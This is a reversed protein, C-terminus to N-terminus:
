KTAPHSKGRLYVLVFAAAYLAGVLPLLMRYGTALSVYEAIGGFVSGVLNSALSRPAEKTDGLLKAFIVNAIMVPSLATVVGLVYRLTPSAVVLREPPIVYVVALTAALAVGWPWVRKVAFRTNVVIAILVMALIAGIVLATTLWTTGFLLGFTVISKAELLMFAAGLFFMPGDVRFPSPFKATRAVDSEEGDADQEDLTGARWAVLTIFAISLTGIVALARIYLSPVHPRKLYLFPWDDTAPAWHSAIERPPSHQIAATGPGALLVATATPDSFVLPRAGFAEELMGAIKEVLWQERYNNYVAFIGDVALHTKVARFAEVTFLYSEMRMNAHSSVVGTSDPLAYAILDYKKDNQRLFARGDDVYLSVKPSAYPKDPHLRQGMEIGMPNIDVGDVHEAGHALAVNVDNGAGCGVILVQDFKRAKVLGAAGYPINYLTPGEVFRRLHMGWIGNGALTCEGNADCKHETRYYPSWSSGVDLWGVFGLVVVSIVYAAIAADRRRWLFPAIGGLVVAFWVVPKPLVFSNATYLIIGLLSGGINTAYGRLPPLRGFLRGMAQGLLLFQLAVMVYAISVFLEPDVSLAQEDRPRGYEGWFLAGPDQVSLKPRAVHVLGCYILLLLPFAPLLPEKRKALLFGAGLGVFSALVLFNTFFGVNKVYANTWRVVLLEFYLAVASLVFLKM